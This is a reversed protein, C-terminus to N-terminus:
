QASRSAGNTWAPRGSWSIKVTQVSILAAAAPSLRPSSAAPHGVARLGLQSSM